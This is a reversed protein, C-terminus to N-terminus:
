LSVHRKHHLRPYRLGAMQEKLLTQGREDSGDAFNAIQKRLPADALDILKVGGCSSISVRCRIRPSTSRCILVSRNWMGNPATEINQVSASNAVARFCSKGSNWMHQFLPDPSVPAQELGSSSTHVTSGYFGAAFGFVTRSSM